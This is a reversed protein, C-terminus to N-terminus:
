HDCTILYVVEFGDLHGIDKMFQRSSEAVPFPPQPPPIYIVRLRSEDVVRGAEKKFMEQTFDEPTTGPNAVVSRLLFRDKCQMDSPAEKQAQMTVVVHCTSRPLVIGKNPRVCYKKANTTKVQFYHTCSISIALPYKLDLPEVNLLEGSSM